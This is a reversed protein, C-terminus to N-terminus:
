ATAGATQYVRQAIAVAPTEILVVKRAGASGPYKRGDTIAVKPMGTLKVRHRLAVAPLDQLAQLILDADTAGEKGGGTIIPWVAQFTTSM